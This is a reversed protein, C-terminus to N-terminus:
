VLTWGSGDGWLRWYAEKALEPRELSMVTVWTISSLSRLEMLDQAYPRQRLDEGYGAVFQDLVLPDRGFHEVHVRLPTLDWARPAVVASDVDILLPGSPGHLVNGPHVDAHAVVLDDDLDGLRDMARELRELLEPVKSSAWRGMEAMEALRGQIAARRREVLSSHSLDDGGAAALEQALEHWGHILEGLWHGDLPHDPHEEVYPWFTAALEGDYLPPEDLPALVDLGAGAACRALALTREPRMSAPGIRAVRGDSLKYVGNLGLRLLSADPDIRYAVVDTAARSLHAMEGM